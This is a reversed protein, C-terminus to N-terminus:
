QEKAALLIQMTRSTTLDAKNQCPLLEVSLNKHLKEVRILQVDSFIDLCTLLKGLTLPKGSWRVIKRLLCMPTERIQGCGALYRWVLGLTARDPFLAEAMAPTLRNKHLERYGICCCDAEASCAPRIDTINMQPTREGRFENVQPVFAM